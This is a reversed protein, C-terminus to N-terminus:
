YKEIARLPMESVFVSQEYHLDLLGLLIAECKRKKRTFIMYNDVHM